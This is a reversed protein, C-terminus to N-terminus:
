AICTWVRGRSPGIMKLAPKSYWSTGLLMDEGDENPGLANPQDSRTLHWWPCPPPEPAFTPTATPFSPPPKLKKLLYIGKGSKGPSWSGIKTINKYIPQFWWNSGILVKLFPLNNKKWLWPETSSPRIQFSGKRCNSPDVKLNFWSYPLFPLQVHIYYHFDNQYMPNHKALLSRCIKNRKLKRRTYIPWGCRIAIRETSVHGLQHYYPM